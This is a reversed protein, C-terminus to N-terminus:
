GKPINKQAVAASNGRQSKFYSVTAMQRKVPGHHLFRGHEMVYAYEQGIRGAYVAMASGRIYGVSIESGIQEAFLMEALRRGANGLAMGAGTDRRGIDGILM